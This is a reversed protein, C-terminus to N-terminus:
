GNRDGLDVCFMETRPIMVENVKTDTFKLISHMMKKEDEHITGSETGMEIM